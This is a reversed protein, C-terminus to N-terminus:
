KFDEEKLKGAKRYANFVSQMSIVTRSREGKKNMIVAHNGDDSNTDVIICHKYEYPYSKIFKGKIIQAGHINDSEGVFEREKYSIGLLDPCYLVAYKKM